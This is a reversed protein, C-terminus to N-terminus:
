IPWQCTLPFLNFLYSYFTLYFLFHSFALIDSTLSQKVQKFSNLVCANLHLNNWIDVIRDVFFTNRVSKRAVSHILQYPHDRLNLVNRSINIRFTVM